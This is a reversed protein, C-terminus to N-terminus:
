DDFRIVRDGVVPMVPAPVSPAAAPASPASPAPAPAVPASSGGPSGPNFNSIVAPGGSSQPAQPQRPAQAQPQPQRPAAGAGDGWDFAFTNADVQRMGGGHGATPQQPPVGGGVNPPPATGGTSSQPQTPTTNGALGQPNDKAAKYATQVDAASPLKWAGGLDASVPFQLRLRTGNDTVVNFTIASSFPTVLQPPYEISKLSIEDIRGASIQGQVLERLQKAKRTLDEELKDAMADMDIKLPTGGASASVSSAQAKATDLQRKLEDITQKARALEESGAGSTTSGSRQAKSQLEALEAQVKEVAKDKADLTARMEILQRQLEEDGQFCSPLSLLGIAGALCLSRQGM